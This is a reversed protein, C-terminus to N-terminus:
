NIYKLLVNDINLTFHNNNTTIILPNNSINTIDPMYVQKTECVYVGNLYMEATKTTNRRVWKINYWNHLNLEKITHTTTSSLWQWIFKNQPDTSSAKYMMRLYTSNGGYKMYVGGSSVEDFMIDYEITYKDIDNKTATVKYFNFLGSAQAQSKTLKLWKNTQDTPNTIMSAYGRNVDPSTINWAVGVDGTSLSPAGYEPTSGKEQYTYIRSDNFNADTLVISNREIMVTYVRSTGDPATVTFTDGTAIDRPISINPSITAGQALEVQPMVEVFPLAAANEIWIINRANNIDASKGNVSFSRIVTPDNSLDGIVPAEDVFEEFNGPIEMKIVPTVNLLNTWFDNAYQTLPLATRDVLNYIGSRATFIQSTGDIDGEDLRLGAPIGGFSALSMDQSSSFGGDPALFNLCSNYMCQIYEPFENEIRAELVSGYEKLGRLLSIPNRIFTAGTVPENSSLTNFISDVIKDANPVQLNFSDYTLYIKYTGSLPNYSIGQGWYGTESNQTTNLFDFLTDLYPARTVSDLQKLYGASAQVKDGAYYSDTNWPLSEIWQRYAQPTELYEPFGSPITSAVLMNNYNSLDTLTFIDSNSALLIPPGETFISAALSQGPLPYLPSAGLYNLATITASLIRSRSRDDTPGTVDVFYGTAPDQRSQFFTILKNKITQPMSTEVGSHVYIFRVATATAELGPIFGEYNRGSATTYFGGTEPDYLSALWDFTSKFLEDYKTLAFDTSLRVDLGKVENINNYANFSNGKAIIRVYKAQVSPFTFFEVQNTTGSSQGSFATTWNVSDLSVAIDFYYNRENGLYFAIGIQNLATVNSLTYQIWEGVGLSPWRTELDGDVSYEPRGTDLTESAIIAGDYMSAGSATVGIGSFVSTLVSVILILAWIRSKM